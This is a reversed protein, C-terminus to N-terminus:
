LIRSAEMKVKGFFFSSSFLLFFLLCYPFYSVTPFELFYTVTKKFKKRMKKKKPQSILLNQEKVTEDINHTNQNKEWKEM